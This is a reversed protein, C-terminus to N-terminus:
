DLHTDYEHPHKLIEDYKVKYGHTLESCIDLHWKERHGNVDVEVMNEQCGTVRGKSHSNLNELWILEGDGFLQCMGQYETKNMVM